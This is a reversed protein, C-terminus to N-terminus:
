ARLQAPAPPQESRPARDDGARRRRGPRDDHPMLETGLDELVAGAGRRPQGDAGAHDRDMIHCEKWPM